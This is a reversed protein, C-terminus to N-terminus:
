PGRACDASTIGPGGIQPVAGGCGALMGGAVLAAGVRVTTSPNM